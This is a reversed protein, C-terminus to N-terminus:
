TSSTQRRDRHEASRPSRKRERYPRDNRLKPLKSRDGLWTLLGGVEEVDYPTGLRVNLLRVFCEMAVRNPVLRHYSTGTERYLQGLTEVHLNPWTFGNGRYTETADADATARRKRCQAIYKKSIDIGLYRRGLKAAAVVTTGSGVFPDFVVQGPDSSARIIRMLLSEPMQCGHWGAREAFTGCVRPFENWVDDPVRGMPNARRDSYETHRASPFRLHEDNFTCETADRVFYLIHTHSKAFMAKTNQGFTYHWIIWNRLTLGLDRGILRAEAAFNDGIAIYFSGTPKLAEVCATMWQRTWDVYQEYEVNDCYEDYTYGINFPPDAFVLDAFPEDLRSLVKLCDGQIVTDLPIGDTAPGAKAQTTRPM